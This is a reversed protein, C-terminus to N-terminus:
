RSCPSEASPTCHWWLNAAAGSSRVCHATLSDDSDVHDLRPLACAASVTRGRHAPASSRAACDTALSRGHAAHDREDAGTVGAGGDATVDIATRSPMEAPSEPREKNSTPTVTRTPWSEIPQDFSQSSASRSAAARRARCASWATPRPVTSGAGTPARPRLGTREGTAREDSPTPEPVQQQHRGAPGVVQPHLLGRPRWQRVRDTETGKRHVHHSHGAAISCHHSAVAPADSPMDACKAFAAGSTSCSRASPTHPRGCRIPARAESAESQREQTADTHQQEATATSHPRATRDAAKEHRHRQCRPSVSTARPWIPLGAKVTTITAATTSTTSSTM